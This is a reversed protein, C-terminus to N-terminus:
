ALVSNDMKRFRGVGHSTPIVVSSDREQNREEEPTSYKLFVLGECINVRNKLWRRLIKAAIIRPKAIKAVQPASASEGLMLMSSMIIVMLKVEADKGCLPAM